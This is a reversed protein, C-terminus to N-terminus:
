PDSHPIVKTPRTGKILDSNRWGFYQYVAYFQEKRAKLSRKEFSIASPQGIDGGLYNAFMEKQSTAGRGWFTAGRGRKAYYWDCPKHHSDDSTEPFPASLPWSAREAWTFSLDNLTASRQDFAKNMLCSDVSLSDFLSLHAFVSSNQQQQMLFGMERAHNIMSIAYVILHDCISFLEFNRQKLHM